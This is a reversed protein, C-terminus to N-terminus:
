GGQGGSSKEARERCEELSMELKDGTLRDFCWCRELEAETVCYPDDQQPEEKWPKAEGFKEEHIENAPDSLEFTGAALGTATLCFIAALMFRRM